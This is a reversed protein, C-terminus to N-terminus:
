DFQFEIPTKNLINDTLFNRGFCNNLLHSKGKLNKSLSFSILNTSSNELLFALEPYINYNLCLNQNTSENFVTNAFALQITLALLICKTIKEVNKLM